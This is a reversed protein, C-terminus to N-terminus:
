ETTRSKKPESVVPRDNKECLPQLTARKKGKSKTMVLNTVVTTASTAAAGLTPVGFGTQETGGEAASTAAQQMVEKVPPPAAQSMQAAMDQMKTRIEQVLEKLDAQEEESAVCVAASSSSSAAAGGAALRLELVKAAEDWHKLADEASGNYGHATALLTHVHSLDRHEPPLLGLRLRLCAHYEDLADQVKDNEMNIDGLLAHVEALRLKSQEDEGAKDFIM